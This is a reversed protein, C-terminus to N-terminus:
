ALQGPGIPLHEADIIPVAALVAFRHGLAYLAQAQRIEARTSFEQLALSEELERSHVLTLERLPPPAAVAPTQATVVPGNLQFRALIDELALMFRPAIDARGRKVERLTEFCRYQQEGGRLQEARKFLQAEFDDLAAALVRELRTSCLA